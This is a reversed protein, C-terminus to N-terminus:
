VCYERMVTLMSQEREERLEEASAYLMVKGKKMFIAYDLYPEIESVEHSSIVITQEYIGGFHVFMKLIEERVLPDLGALPEDMLLVPVRRALGIAINLQMKNGKSLHGVKKRKDFNLFSMIEEAAAREFDPYVKEAYDLTEQITYFSYLSQGDTVYAIQNGAQRTVKSAGITVSGSTPRLLGSMLNLLTTKGSGNLGLLGVLGQEPLRISVNDIAVVSGFCRTVEHLEVQTSHQM